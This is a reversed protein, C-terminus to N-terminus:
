KFWGAIIYRDGGSLRSVGHQLNKGDFFVARGATPAIMVSDNIMLRGGEFNDNLFIILSLITHPEADDHHDLFISGEPCRILQWWDMTHGCFEELKKKLSLFHKNDRLEILERDNFIRYKEKFNKHYDICFKTEEDNLFNNVISIDPKLM